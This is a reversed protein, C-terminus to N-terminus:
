GGSIMKLQDLIQQIMNRQNEELDTFVGGARFKESDVWRCEFPLQLNRHGFIGIPNLPIELWRYDGTKIKPESTYEIKCGNKSLDLLVGSQIFFPLHKYRKVEVIAYSPLRADRLQM